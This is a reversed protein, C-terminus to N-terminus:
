ESLPGGGSVLPVTSVTWCVHGYVTSVTHSSKSSGLGRERNAITTRVRLYKSVRLNNTCACLNAIICDFPM